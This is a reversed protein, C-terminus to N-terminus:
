KNNNLKQLDEELRKLFSEEGDDGSILWDVRQAYVGAIRLIEVAQKLEAIVAPAYEHHYEDKPHNNYWESDRWPYDKKEEENKKRGNKRVLQDIEDAIRDIHYQQYDFAGGSM